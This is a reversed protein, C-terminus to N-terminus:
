PVQYDPDYPRGTGGSGGSVVPPEDDVEVVPPVTPQAPDPDPAGTRTVGGTSATFTGWDLSNANICFWDQGVEVVEFYRGNIETMGEVGSFFVHDGVSYGHYAVAVRAQAANTLGTIALEEHLVLGGRTAPRMYGQGMELAYAQDLSFQFPVLRV